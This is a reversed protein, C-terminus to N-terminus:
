PGFVVNPEEMSLSIDLEEEMGYVQMIQPFTGRVTYSNIPFLHTGFKKKMVDSNLTV